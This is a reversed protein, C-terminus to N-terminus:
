RRMEKTSNHMGHKPIADATTAAPDSGVEEM